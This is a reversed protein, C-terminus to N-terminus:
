GGGGAREDLLDLVNSDVDVDFKRAFLKGSREMRVVDQARLIAPGPDTEWDVFHLTDNVVDARFPSNMVITQFFLEDPVFVHEFFRAFAPNDRVFRTVYEAVPRSLCWYAEGGFPRLGGPIRRKWPLRVSHPHGRMVHWREIRELGGGRGWAAYPLPSNHVFSRGGSGELFRRIDASSRLPYDQGTLLVAYDVRERAVLHELACVTARVLGFGGWHTRQRPLLSVRGLELAHRELERYEGDGMVRDVHLAVADGGTAIRRLLRIVQDSSKYALVIYGISM